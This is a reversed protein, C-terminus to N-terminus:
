PTRTEHDRTQDRVAALMKPVCLAEEAHSEISLPGGPSDAVDVTVDSAAWSQLLGRRRDLESAGLPGASLDGPIQYLINM